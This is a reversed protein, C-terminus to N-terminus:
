FASECALNFFLVADYSNLVNIVENHDILLLISIGGSLLALLLSERREIFM